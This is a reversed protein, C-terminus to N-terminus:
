TVSDTPKAVPISMVAKCEAPSPVRVWVGAGIQVGIRAEIAVGIEFGYRSGCGAQRVGVGM